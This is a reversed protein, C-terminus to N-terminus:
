KGHWSINTPFKYVLWEILIMTLSLAIGTALVYIPFLLDSVTLVKFTEEHYTGFKKVNAWSDNFNLDRIWKMHFGGNNLHLLIENIRELYVSNKQVLFALNYTRPCDTILHVQKHLFYKGYSQYILEKRTVSVIKEGKVIRDMLNPTRQVEIMKERLINISRTSNEPFLDDVMAAYKIGIKLPSESLEELTEIDKYFLPKIFLTSLSSQFTSVFILSVLCMSGLFLRESVSKPFKRMPFSVMIIGSDVLFRLYNRFKRMGRWDFSENRMELERIIIWTLASLFTTLLLLVWVTPQFCILPVISSPIREAKKTVCCLQDPYMAVSFDLNDSLYDKIFFGVAVLDGEGYIIRGLSGTFTGNELM